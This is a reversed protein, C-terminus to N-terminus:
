EGRAREQAERALEDLSKKAASFQIGLAARAAPTIGFAREIRQIQADLALCFPGLPNLRPQGRSGEVYPRKTFAAWLRARSDYLEFLRRLSPEDASQVVQAVGDRWFTSWAERTPQLWNGPEPIPQAGRPALSVSRPKNRRQRREPPKRHSM